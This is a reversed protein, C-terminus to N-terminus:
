HYISGTDCGDTYLVFICKHTHTHTQSWSPRTARDWRRSDWMRQCNILRGGTLHGRNVQESNQFHALFHFLISIKKLFIFFFLSFAFLQLSHLLSSVNTVLTTREWIGERHCTRSGFPATSLCVSEKWFYCVYSIQTLPFFAHEQM